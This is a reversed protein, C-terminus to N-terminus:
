DLLRLTGLDHMQVAHLEAMVAFMEDGRDTHTVVQSAIVAMVLGEAAGLRYDHEVDVQVLDVGSAILGGVYRDLLRSEHRRLDSSCM